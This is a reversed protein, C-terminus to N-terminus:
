RLKKNLLIRYNLRIKFLLSMKKEFYFIKNIKILSFNIGVFYRKNSIFVIYTLYPFFIKLIDVMTLPSIGKTKNGHILYPTTKMDGVGYKICPAM